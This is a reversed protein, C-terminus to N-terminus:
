AWIVTGVCQRTARSLQGLHSTVYQSPKGIQWCNGMWTSSMGMTDIVKNILCLTNIMVSFWSILERFIIVDDSM